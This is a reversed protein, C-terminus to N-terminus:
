SSTFSVFKISLDSAKTSKLLLQHMEVFVVQCPPMVPVLFYTATVSVLINYPALIVKVWGYM